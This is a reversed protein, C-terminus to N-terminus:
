QFFIRGIVASAADPVYCFTGLLKSGEIERENVFRVTAGSENTLGEGLNMLLNGQGAPFTFRALSTRPTATVECKIGYKDLQNSYYGPTATEQSYVSGYNEYNVNLEGATPMLLLSGLEPCGVGSLNVHAFGTLYKNNFEYPTSWWTKDKNIKNEPANGMVNFPTVSMMGQPCVAGPNTTGYNTTGVFPNVYDVPEKQASASLMVFLALGTLLTKKM